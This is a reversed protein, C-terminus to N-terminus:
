QDVVYVPGWILHSVNRRALKRHEKAVQAKKAKVIAEQMVWEAEAKVDAASKNLVIPRGAGLKNSHERVRYILGMNKYTNWM